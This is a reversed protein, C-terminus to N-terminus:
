RAWSPQSCNGTFGRVDKTQKTPVDLMSLGREGGATRRVYVLTRSNPAWSPDEGGALVRAEGGSAPIVCVDFGGAQSTFAIWKGDPSWDPESPNPVGATPIGQTKGGDVSVKVLVRRGSRKTAFCIWKGDPSWTPSSEDEKTQTLQRLGTGDWNAVYVDPSGAKSLIMAVQRGDPSSAPSINSGSYRAVLKRDGSVLDHFVIDANNFKHTMYFLAMRGPLVSPAAVIVNDSTVTKSNFGDYDSVVIEGVGTNGPKKMRFAIKTRAIGKQGTVTQVVDDALAHAQARVSGGSYAKSLKVAKTIADTLQGQVRGDTGGKLVYQADAESVIKFGVVALDFRLAESVEGSYGTLAIPVPAQNFDAFGTITLERDAADLRGDGTGLLTAALLVSTLYAPTKM